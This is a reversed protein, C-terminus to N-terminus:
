TAPVLVQRKKCKAEYKVKVYEKRGGFGEDAQKILLNDHYLVNRGGGALAGERFKYMVLVTLAPMARRNSAADVIMSLFGITSADLMDVSWGLDFGHHQIDIDDEDEGLYPTEVLDTRPTVTFDTVKVFSGALREGDVAFSLTAEQGRIRSSM